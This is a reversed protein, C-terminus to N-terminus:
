VDVVVDEAVDDEEEGTAGFEHTRSHKSLHDSRMFRKGCQACVFRKDGTHTRLHRQLEDSRTFRKGCFLWQCLFPKEGAHWRLHAKLHSTKGYSKGCGAIHCVHLRKKGADQERPSVCNPCQCRRCKRTELPPSHQFLVGPPSVSFPNPLNAHLPVCVPPQTCSVPQRASVLWPAMDAEYPSPPQGGISGIRSVDFAFITSASPPFATPSLKGGQAATSVAPMLGVSAALPALPHHLPVRVSSQQQQQVQSFASSKAQKSKPQDADDCWPRFLPRNAGVTQLAVVIAMFAVSASPTVPPPLRLVIPVSLRISM